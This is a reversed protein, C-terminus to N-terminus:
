KGISEPRRLTTALEVVDQYLPIKPRQIDPFQYADCSFFITALEGTQEKRLDILSIQIAVDADHQDPLFGTPPALCQACESYLVLSQLRETGVDLCLHIDISSKRSGRRTPGPKPLKM